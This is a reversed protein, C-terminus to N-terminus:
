PKGELLDWDEATSTKIISMIYVKYTRGGHRHRRAARFELLNIVWRLACICLPNVWCHIQDDLYQLRDILVRCLEQCNTGAYAPAGNGPYTSGLRKVFQITQGRDGDIPSVWYMHGKDLVTM